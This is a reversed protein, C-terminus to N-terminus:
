SRDILEQIPMAGAVTNVVSPSQRLPKNENWTPIGVPVGDLEDIGPSNLLSPVRQQLHMGFVPRRAPGLRLLEVLAGGPVNLTM